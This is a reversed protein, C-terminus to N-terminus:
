QRRWEGNWLTRKFSTKQPRHQYARWARDLDSLTLGGAIYKADLLRRQVEYEDDVRIYDADPTKLAFTLKERTDFWKDELRQRTVCYEELPTSM